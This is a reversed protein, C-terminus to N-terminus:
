HRLLLLPVLDVRASRLALRVVFQVKVERKKVEEKLLDM